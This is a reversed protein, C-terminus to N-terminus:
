YKFNAIRHMIMLGVCYLSIIAAVIPWFIPEEFKSIYFAPQSLAISGVLFIPLISLVMASMRGESSLAKVRKGLTIRARIVKSLNELIEALNGGTEAQIAVSVAFFHADSSGTRRAFNALAERLEFGYTTEDVILGFETGIPDGMETTVLQLASVVPHGARLSRVVIDLALPLQDELVRLRRNRITSVGVFLAMGTLMTSGVMSMVLEALGVVAGTSRLVFTATLWLVSAAGVWIAIMMLPSVNLGAQSLAKSARNYINLISANRINPAARERVLSEYVEKHALGSALMTMRRNVRQTRARSEMVATAVGQALVAVALFALVFILPLIFQGM